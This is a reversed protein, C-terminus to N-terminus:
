YICFLVIMQLVVTGFVTKPVHAKEIKWELHTIRNIMITANLAWFLMKQGPHLINYSEKM